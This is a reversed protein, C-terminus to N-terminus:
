ADRGRSIGVETQVFGLAIEAITEQSKLKLHWVNAEMQTMSVNVTSKQFRCCKLNGIWHKEEFSKLYENQLNMLDQCGAASRRIECVQKFRSGVM